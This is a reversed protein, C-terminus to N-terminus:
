SKRTAELKSIRRGEYHLTCLGDFGENLFLKIWETVTNPNVLLFAAISRNDTGAQKLQICELRRYVKINDEKGKRKHLEKLEAANLEVRYIM